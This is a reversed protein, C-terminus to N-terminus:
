QASSIFELHMNALSDELNLNELPTESLATLKRFIKEAKQNKFLKGAKKSNLM